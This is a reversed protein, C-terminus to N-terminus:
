LIKNSKQRNETKWLPQLNTYHCCKIIDDLKNFDFHSFPIIHDIEWDGYNEFTMRDEMKELLYKEFDSVSCGLIETHKFTKIVAVRKLERNIRISLNSIIRYIPREKRLKEYKEIVVDNINEQKCHNQKKININEQRFCYQKKSNINEKKYYYNKIKTNRYKKKYYDQIPTDM